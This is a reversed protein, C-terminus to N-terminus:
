FGRPVYRTTLFRRWRSPRLVGGLLTYEIHLKAAKSSSDNFQNGRRLASATSGDDLIFFQAIGSVLFGNDLLEQVVSVISATQEEVDVTWGPLGDWAVVAATLNADVISHWNADSSVIPSNDAAHAQINTRVVTNSDSNTPTIILHAVTIIAGAPIVVDIFRMNSGHSGGSNGIFLTTQTVVHTFSHRIDDASAGVQLDLTSM